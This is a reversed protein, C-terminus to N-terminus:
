PAQCRQHRAGHQRVIHLIYLLAKGGCIDLKLKVAEDRMFCLEFGKVRCDEYLWRENNRNQILDFCDTDELPLLNLRYQYLNRTQSVYVLGAASGMAVLYPLPPATGITLPVVVCGIVGNGKLIARNIGDGEIAAEEQLVSM